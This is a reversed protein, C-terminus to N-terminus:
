RPGRMKTADFGKILASLDERTFLMEIQEGCNPCDFKAKVKLQKEPTIFPNVRLGDLGKYEDSLKM